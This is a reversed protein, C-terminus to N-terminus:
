TQAAEWEYKSGPLWARGTEQDRLVFEKDIPFAADCDDWSDWSTVYGEEEEFVHLLVFRGAVPVSM